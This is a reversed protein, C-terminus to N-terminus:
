YPLALYPFATLPQEFNSSNAPPKGLGGSYYLDFNKEHDNKKNKPMNPKNAIVINIPESIFPEFEHITKPGKCTCGASNALNVVASAIELNM